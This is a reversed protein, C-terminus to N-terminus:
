PIYEKLISYLSTILQIITPGGVEKFKSMIRKLKSEESKKIKPKKLIEVLEEIDPRIKNIQEFPIGVKLFEAIIEEKIGSYKYEQKIDKGIAVNGGATIDGVEIIQLNSETVEQKGEVEDKFLDELKNVLERM